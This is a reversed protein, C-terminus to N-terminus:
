AKTKLGEKLIVRRAKRLSYKGISPAPSSISAEKSQIQEVKEKMKDDTKPLFTMNREIEKHLKVFEMAAQRHQSTREPLCPDCRSM